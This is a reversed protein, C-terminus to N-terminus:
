WHALIRNPQDVANEHAGNAMLRYGFYREFKALARASKMPDFVESDPREYLRYLAWDALRRHHMEPIEPISTEGEELAMPELPTRYGELVLKYPRSVQIPLYVRVGPEFLFFRPEGREERWNPYVNDMLEQTVLRLTVTPRTGYVPGTPDTMPYLDARTIEFLKAAATGAVLPYNSQGASVAISTIANDWILRKRLAAEDEAENLYDALDADSVLTGKGARDGWDDADRRVQLILEALNM